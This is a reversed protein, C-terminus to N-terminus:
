FFAPPLAPFGKPHLDLSPLKPQYTYAVLGSLLNVLFNFVSRHRSHEIQCINKLQDNVSEILARKRLFIKDMLKMLRQKMKKKSKTVLQLGRQYLQEFLKQSIYGRDGFLQGILDQTLDPVPQRDDTNAPTLKFALLEGRENIILHLKFGFHWGMSNKGWAVLDKFVKHAHARKPHCVEIPTSDIFQIGTIEGKRTHLFCCLLMLCWPMLEVFRNYSVLHPFAKRWYPQVTLTYFDKFTRAGSGHFAIVITIIESLHMRSRSRKEGLMSPLQPQQEWLQEFQQCYDDVDCFIQTLDLRSVISDM